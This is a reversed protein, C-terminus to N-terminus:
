LATLYIFEPLENATGLNKIQSQLTSVRVCARHTTAKEFRDAFGLCMWRM